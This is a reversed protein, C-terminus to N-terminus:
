VFHIYKLRNKKNMDIIQELKSSMLVEMSNSYKFAKDRTCRELDDKSAEVLEPIAETECKLLDPLGEYKMKLEEIDMNVNNCALTLEKIDPIILELLKPAVKEKFYGVCANVDEDFQYEMRKVEELITCTKSLKITDNLGDLNSEVFYTIELDADIHDNMDRLIGETDEIANDIADNYNYAEIAVAEILPLIEKTTSTRTHNLNDIIENDFWDDLYEIKMRLAHFLKLNLLVDESTRCTHEKIDVHISTENHKKDDIDGSKTLNTMMGIAINDGTKNSFSEDIPLAM